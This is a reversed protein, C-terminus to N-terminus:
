YLVNLSMENRVLELQEVGVKKRDRSDMKDTLQVNEDQKDGSRRCEGGEGNGSAILIWGIDLYM